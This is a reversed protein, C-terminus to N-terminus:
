RRYALGGLVLIHTRRTNSNRLKEALATLGPDGNDTWLGHSEQRPASAEKVRDATQTCSILALASILLIVSTSFLLRNNKM